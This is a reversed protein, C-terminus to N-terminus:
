TPLKRRANSTPEFHQSESDKQWWGGAPHPV